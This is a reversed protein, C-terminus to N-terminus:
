GTGMQRVRAREGTSCYCLDVETDENHRWLLCRLLTVMLARRCQPWIEEPDSRTEERKKSRREMCGVVMLLEEFVVRRGNVRKEVKEQGRM